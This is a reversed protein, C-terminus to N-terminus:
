EVIKTISQEVIVSGAKIVFNAVPQDQIVDSLKKTDFVALDAKKGEAIGYTGEIGLCKAANYTIMDLVTRQQEASGM